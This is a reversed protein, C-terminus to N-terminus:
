SLHSKKGKRAAPWRNTVREAAFGVGFAFRTLLGFTNFVAVDIASAGAGIV